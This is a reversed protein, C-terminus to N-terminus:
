INPKTICSSNTYKMFTYFKKRFTKYIVILGTFNLHFLLHSMILGLSIVQNGINVNIDSTLCQNSM